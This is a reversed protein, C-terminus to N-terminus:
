KVSIKVHIEDSFNKLIEKWIFPGVFIVKDSNKSKLRIRWFSLQTLRVEEVVETECDGKESCLSLQSTRFNFWGSNVVIEPWVLISVTRGVLIWIIFVVTLLVTKILNPSQYWYWTLASFLIMLFVSYLVDPSAVVEMTQISGLILHPSLVSKFCTLLSMVLLIVIQFFLGFHKM